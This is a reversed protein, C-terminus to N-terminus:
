HSHQHWYDDVCDDVRESDGPCDDATTLVTMLVVPMLVRVTVLV